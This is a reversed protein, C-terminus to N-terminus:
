ERESALMGAYAGLEGQLESVLKEIEDALPGSKGEGLGYRLLEVLQPATNVFAQKSRGIEGGEDDPSQSIESLLARASRMPRTLADLREIIDDIADVYDYYETEQLTGLEEKIIQKLQSKTIKM